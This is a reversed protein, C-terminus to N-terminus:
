RHTNKRKSGRPTYMGPVNSSNNKKNIHLKEEITEIPRTFVYVVYAVILILIPIGIQALM